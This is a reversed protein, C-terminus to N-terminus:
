VLGKQFNLSPGSSSPRPVDGDNGFLDDQMRYVFSVLVNDENRENERKKKRKSIRSSNKRQVRRTKKQQKWGRVTDGGQIRRDAHKSSTVIM